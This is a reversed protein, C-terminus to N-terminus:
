QPTLLKSTAADIEGAALLHRGILHEVIEISAADFEVQERPAPAAPKRDHRIRRDLLTSEQAMRPQEGDRRAMGANRRRLDCQSPHQPLVADARDRARALRRMNALVPRREVNTQSRLVEGIEVTGKRRGRV